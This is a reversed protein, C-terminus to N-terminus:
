FKQLPLLSFVFCFSAGVLGDFTHHHAWEYLCVVLLPAVSLHVSNSSCYQVRCSNCASAYFFWDILWSFLKPGTQPDTVAPPRALPTRVKSCCAHAHATNADRQASKWELKFRYFWFADRSFAVHESVTITPTDFTYFLLECWFLHVAPTFIANYFSKCKNRAFFM